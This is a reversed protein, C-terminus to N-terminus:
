KLITKLLCLVERNTFYYIFSEFNCTSNYLIYEFVDNFYMNIRNFTIQISNKM